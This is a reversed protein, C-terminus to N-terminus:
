PLAPPAPFLQVPASQLSATSLQVFLQAVFTSPSPIASRERGESTYAELADSM